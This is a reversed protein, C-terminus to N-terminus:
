GVVTSTPLLTGLDITGSGSPVTIPFEELDSGLIRFTVMWQSDAPFTGSDNNAILSVSINGGSDPNATITAPVYTTSGNTMRKTLSFTVSGSAPTGDANTFTHTVTRMTFGM